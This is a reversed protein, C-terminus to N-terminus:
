GTYRLRVFLRQWWPIEQEEFAYGFSEVDSAYCDAVRGALAPSYFASYHPRWIRKRRRLPPLEWGLRRELEPLQEALTEYRVLYDTAVADQLELWSRQPSWRHIGPSVTGGWLRPPESESETVVAELWDQFARRRGSKGYVALKSGRSGSWRMQFCYDSVLRDWPNRVISFKFYTAFTEADLERAYRALDQHNQWGGGLAEKFSSGATKPIHIFIFERDHDIM